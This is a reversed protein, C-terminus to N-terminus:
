EQQVMADRLACYECELADCRKPWFALSVIEEAVRRVGEELADIDEKSIPLTEKKYKGAGNPEVFDITGGTAHYQTEEDRRLLLAYFVLQRWYNGNSGKTNGLIANKSRPLATKYDVVTVAGGDLLEVKDIEGRLVVDSEFPVVLRLPTIIDTHWAGKYHGVYGALASSGRRTLEQIEDERLPLDALSKKFLSVLGDPGPDTGGSLSTFYAELADHVATGYRMHLSVAQPIRLLSVYFYKWPCELYNNLATPSLGRERFLARVFEEDKISVMHTSPAASKRSTQAYAKEYDGTDTTSILGEKIEQFFQTPLRERGDMGAEAYTVTIHKRARTLAVYFLRREDDIGGAVAGEGEKLPLSFYQPHSRNGWHGDYAGTVYVYDFELGKASHATMLRVRDGRTYPRWEVRVGHRMLTELHTVFQALTLDRKQEVVKRAEGYLAHLRGVAEFGGESIAYALYGSEAVIQDLGNLLPKNHAARHWRELKIYLEGLAGKDKKMEQWLPKKRPTSRALLEYVDLPDLSLFSSHLAEALGVPKGVHVVATLLHVLSRIDSSELVNQKSEVIYPIGAAELSRTLTLADANDRYLVAVEGPLVGEDLREQIREAVVWEEVDPSSFSCVEMPAGAGGKAAVLEEGVDETGGMLSHASDLISQTSRYNQTLTVRRVGTYKKEFYLFNELSAGQFRFIAQKADGVIFLNPSDHFDTLLELLRNQSKNADQHEDALIYLYQEQLTRLLDENEELVEIAENLMDAFDYLRREALKKEYLAYVAALEENKVVYGFEKVYKGKMKGKHAGKEHYLDPTKKLAQEQEKVRRALEESGIADRKLEDIASRVRPLNHYPEGFPRLASLPAEAICSELIEIQEVENVPRAGVLRPFEEPRSQIIENAFQHFTGITVSYAASGIIEALRRRMNKAAAETFTLALINAPNADTRVLINAIRLTLVHTKGTGPGAVVMVPGEVEDVAEKQEKNLGKYLKEFAPTTKSM